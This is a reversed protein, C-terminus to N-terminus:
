QFRSENVWDAGGLWQHSLALTDNRAGLTGGGTKAIIGGWPIQNENSGQAMSIRLSWRNQDDPLYDLKVLGTTLTEEFAQSGNEVLFGKATILPLARVPDITVAKEDQKRYRETSVFYFLRDELLPGGATVGFQEQRHDTAEATKADWQGPRYFVFASRAHENTGSKLISNVVGGSARGYEASLAGTIVQFERIADQGIPSGVAGTGLDNNDLGDLLFRNQRPNMGRFSLGSNPVGGSLPTNSRAVGPVTLCFDAFSRRPIPLGEISAPDIVEAIQTRQPDQHSGEVVVEAFGETEKALGVDLVSVTGLLIQIDRLRRSTYGQAEVTLLYTGAPILPFRYEGRDHIRLTRTEGTEANRLTLLVLPPAEPADMLSIQGKLVGRTTQAPLLGAV